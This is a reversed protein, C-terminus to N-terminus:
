RRALSAADRKPFSVMNGNIICCLTQDDLETAFDLPIGARIMLVAGDEWTNFSITPRGFGYLQCDAVFTDIADLLPHM